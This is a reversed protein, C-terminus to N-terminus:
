GRSRVDELVLGAATRLEEDGIADSALWALYEEEGEQALYGLPKGAYRTFAEGLELELAAALEPSPEAPPTPPEAEGPEEGSFPAAPGPPPEPQEEGGAPAAAPLERAARGYVLEQAQGYELADADLMRRVRVPDGLPLAKFLRRAVTKEAMRDWWETWWTSDKAKSTRRVREVEQRNMVELMRGPGHLERGVAYVHTVEGRDADAPRHHIAPELGLTYSFEDAEHVARAELAWGHEAAIKRYGGVMPLYQAAKRRAGKPKFMVLAAERGDPVLGDTAAKISSKIISEHTAEEALEPQEMLATVLVRVFNRAQMGEPLAAQVQELFTEGRVTRVLEQVPTRREVEQGTV